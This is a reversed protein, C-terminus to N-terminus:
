TTSASFFAEFLMDILLEKIADPSRSKLIDSLSEASSDIFLGDELLGELDLTLKVLEVDSFGDLIDRLVERGLPQQVSGVIIVQALRM